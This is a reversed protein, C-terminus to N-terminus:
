LYIKTKQKEKKKGLYPIKDRFVSEVLTATNTVQV